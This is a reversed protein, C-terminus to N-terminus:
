VKVIRYLAISMLSNTLWYLVLGSPIHYFMVAFMVSMLPGSFLKLAPNSSGPEMKGQSLKSQVFMAIAMIIPLANLDRGILPLAFPLRSARDPMSLDNVWLFSAGRLDIFHSIAQFLAIFVPMQLLMPLCGSLPSVRHERYLALMEANAKKPDDKHKAMIWDVKPKLGQMKKMSKLSLITFPATLAMILCSFIIIAVGYNGTLKAIQKLGFLMLLGLQGFAGIPFADEFGVRQLHFYDRPGVYTEVQVESGPELTFSASAAITKETSQVIRAEKLAEPLRISECFYRGSLSLMITGRPVNKESRFPYTYKKHKKHGNLESLVVLELSSQNTSGSDVESWMASLSINSHTRQAVNEIRLHVLSTEDHITYTLRSKPIGEQRSELVVHQESRDILSLQNDEDHFAVSLLPGAAGVELPAQGEASKFSKLMARRVAGSSTGIELAIAKSEIRITQEDEGAPFLSVTPTRQRQHFPKQASQPNAPLSTLGAHSPTRGIPLFRLYWSVFLCSLLAALLVRKEM